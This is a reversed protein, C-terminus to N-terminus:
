KETNSTCLIRLQNGTARIMGSSMIPRICLSLCVNDSALPLSAIADRKLSTDHCKGRFNRFRKIEDRVLLHWKQGNAM